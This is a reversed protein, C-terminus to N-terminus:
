KVAIWPQSRLGKEQDWVPVSHTLNQRDLTSARLSPLILNVATALASSIANPHPTPHLPTSLILAEKGELVTVPPCLVDNLWYSKFPLCSLRFVKRTRICHTYTHADTHTHTHKHIHTLAHTHTPPSSPYESQHRGGPQRRGNQKRKLKEAAAAAAITESVVGRVVAAVAQPAVEGGRQTIAWGRVQGYPVAGPCPIIEAGLLSPKKKGGM